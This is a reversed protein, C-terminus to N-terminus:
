ALKVPDGKRKGPRCVNILGLVIGLGVLGYAMAWRTTLADAPPTGTEQALCLSPAALAFGLGIVLPLSRILRNMAIRLDRSHPLVDNGM